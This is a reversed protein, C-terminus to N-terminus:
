CFIITTGSKAIDKMGALSKQKFKVDGVSLVGDIMLIDAKFHAAVSFALRIKM